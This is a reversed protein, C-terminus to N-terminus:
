RGVSQACQLRCTARDDVGLQANAQCGAVCTELVALSAAPVRASSSERCATVCGPEAPGGNAPYCAGLCTTAQGVAPDFAPTPTEHYNGECGLRCTARDTESLKTDVCLDLCASMGVPDCAPFLLLLLLTTRM